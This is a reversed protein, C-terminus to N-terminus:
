KKNNIRWLQGNLYNNVAINPMDGIERVVMSIVNTKKIDRRLFDYNVVNIVSSKGSSFVNIPDTSVQISTKPTIFGPQFFMDEPLLEEDEKEAKKFLSKILNKIRCCSDNKSTKCTINYTLWNIYKYKM